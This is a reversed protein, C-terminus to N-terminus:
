LIKWDVYEILSSVFFVLFSRSLSLSIYIYIYVWFQRRKESHTSCFKNVIRCESLNRSTYTLSFIEPLHPSMDHKHKRSCSKWTWQGYYDMITKRRKSSSPPHLVSSPSGAEPSKALLLNSCESIETSTRQLMTSAVLSSGSENVFPKWSDTSDETSTCGEAKSMVPSAPSTCEMKECKRTETVDLRPDATIRRRIASPRPHSSM